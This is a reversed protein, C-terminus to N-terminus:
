HISPYLRFCHTLNIRYTVRGKLWEDMCGASGGLSPAAAVAYILPICAVSALSLKVRVASAIFVMSVYPSPIEVEYPVQTAYYIGQKKTKIGVM